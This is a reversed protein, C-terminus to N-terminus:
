RALNYTKKGVSVEVTRNKLWFEHEKVLLPLARDLIDTDNTHEIYIKIM